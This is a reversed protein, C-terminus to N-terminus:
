NFRLMVFKFLNYVAESNPASLINHFMGIDCININLKKFLDERASQFRSCESLLHTVDEINGCVDCNSLSRKKMLFGFKNLPMHGSRLRHAIVAHKRSLKTNMFWPIHPPESVITRYWIGKEKSQQNFYEKWLEYCKNKYKPLLEVYNTGIDLIKGRM